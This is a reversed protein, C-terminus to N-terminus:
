RPAAGATGSALRILGLGYENDQHVVYLEFREDSSKSELWRLVDFLSADRFDYTTEEGAATRLALRFRPAEAEWRSDRPDVM